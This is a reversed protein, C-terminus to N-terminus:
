AAKCRNSLYNVTREKGQTRKRYAIARIFIHYIETAKYKRTRNFRNGESDKPVDRFWRIITVDSCQYGACQKLANFLEKGSFIENSHLTTAELYASLLSELSLKTEPFLRKLDSVIKLSEPNIELGNFRMASKVRYWTAISIKEGLYDQYTNKLHINKTYKKSM